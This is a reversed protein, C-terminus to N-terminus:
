THAPEMNAAAGAAKRIIADLWEDGSGDPGQADAWRLLEEVVPLSEREAWRRRDKARGAEIEARVRADNRGRVARMKAPSHIGCFWHLSTTDRAQVDHGRLLFWDDLMAPEQAKAPRGCTRWETMMGVRDTIEGECLPTERDVQACKPDACRRWLPGLVRHQGARYTSKEYAPISGHAVWRHTHRESM